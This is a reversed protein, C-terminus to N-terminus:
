IFLFFPRSKDSPHPYVISLSNNENFNGLAKSNIENNHSINCSIKFCISELNNILTRLLSFLKVHDVKSKPYICVVEKVRSMVSSIM